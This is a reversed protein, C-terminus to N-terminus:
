SSILNQMVVTETLTSPLALNSSPVLLKIINGFFWHYPYTLIVQTGVLAGGGYIYSRNITLSTGNSCTYTFTEPGPGTSTPTSPSICSSDVGANTMYNAVANATAQIACPTVSTCSSDQLPNNIAIRAGERAGNAMKQKLNYAGAFQIIGIVFVLLVPLVLAFELLQAGETEAAARITWGLRSSRCRELRQTQTFLRKINRFRPKMVPM